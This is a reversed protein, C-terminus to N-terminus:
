VIYLGGRIVQRPPSSLFPSFFSWFFVCSFCATPSFSFASFLPLKKGENRANNHSRSPLYYFLFFFFSLLFLFLLLSQRGTARNEVFLIQLVPSFFTCIVLLSFSLLHISFLPFSSSCIAVSISQGAFGEVVNCSRRRGGPRNEEGRQM